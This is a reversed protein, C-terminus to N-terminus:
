WLEDSLVVVFENIQLDSIIFIFENDKYM